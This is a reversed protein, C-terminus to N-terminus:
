NGASAYARGLAFKRAANRRRFRSISFADVRWLFYQRSFSQRRVVNRRTRDCITSLCCSTRCVGCSPRTAQQPAIQVPVSYTEHRDPWWPIHVHVTLEYAITSYESKFTPPLNAPLNFDVIHKSIGPKLKGAPVQYALRVNERRHYKRVNSKGTSATYKYRSERGVLFIDIADFPTESKSHLEITARVTQGPSPAVPSLYVVIDPRSRM